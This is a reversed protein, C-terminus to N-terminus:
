SEIPRVDVAKLGREGCEVMFSVEEGDEPVEGKPKVVDNIHFFIDDDDTGGNAIFGYGDDANYMKIIGTPM